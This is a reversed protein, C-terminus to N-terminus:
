QDGSWKKGRTLKDKCWCSRDINKVQASAFQLLLKLKLQNQRNCCPQNGWAARVVPVLPCAQVDAEGRWFASIDSPEKLNSLIWTGGVLCACPPDWGWFSCWILWLGLLELHSNPLPSLEHQLASAPTKGLALCPLSSARWCWKSGAALPVEWGEERITHCGHGKGPLHGPLM